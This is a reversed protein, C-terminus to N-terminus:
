HKVAEFISDMSFNLPIVFSAPFIPLDRGATMWTPSNPMFELSAMMGYFAEATAEIDANHDYIRDAQSINEAVRRFMAEPTEIPLGNLDKKLYRKELVKLANPALQPVFRKQKQSLRALRKKPAGARFSEGFINQEVGM